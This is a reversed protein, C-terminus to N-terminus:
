SDPCIMVVECLFAQQSQDPAITEECKEKDLGDAFVLVCDEGVEVSKVPNNNKDGGALAHTSILLCILLIYKNM